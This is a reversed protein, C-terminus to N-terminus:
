ELSEVNGSKEKQWSQEVKQKFEKTYEGEDGALIFREILTELTAVKNELEEVKQQTDKTM